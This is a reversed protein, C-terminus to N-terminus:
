REPRDLARALLLAEAYDIFPFGAPTIRGSIRDLADLIQGIEALSFSSRSVRWKRSYDGKDMGVAACLDAVAVGLDLRRDELRKGIVYPDFRGGRVYVRRKRPKNLWAKRSSSPQSGVNLPYPTPGGKPVGRLRPGKPTEWRRLLYAQRTAPRNTTEWVMGVGTLSEIPRRILRARADRPREIASISLFAPIVGAARELISRPTVASGRIEM